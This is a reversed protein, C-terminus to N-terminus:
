TRRRGQRAHDLYRRPDSPPYRRCPAGSRSRRCPLAAVVAHGSRLELSRVFGLGLVPEDLEPALVRALRERIATGDCGAPFEFPVDDRM